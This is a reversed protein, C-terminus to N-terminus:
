QIHKLGAAERRVSARLLGGISVWDQRQDEESRNVLGLPSCHYLPVWLGGNALRIAGAAHASSMSASAAPASLAIRDGLGKRCSRFATKGMSVIVKPEVIAILRTLFSLSDEIWAAKIAGSKGKKSRVGLVANTMFIPQARPGAPLGPDMGAATALRHFVQCTREFDSDRGHNALFYPLDGWDQGVVLLDAELDGQWRSWPGLHDSDWAGGAIESPNLLGDPFHHAKRDEVLAQYAALKANM